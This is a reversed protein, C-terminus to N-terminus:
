PQEVFDMLESMLHPLQTKASSSCSIKKWGSGFHGHISFALYASFVNLKINTFVSNYVYYM